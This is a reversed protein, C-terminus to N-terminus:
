FLAFHMCLRILLFAFHFSVLFEQHLTKTDKLCMRLQRRTLRNGASTLYEVASSFLLIMSYFRLCNTLLRDKSSSSMDGIAM